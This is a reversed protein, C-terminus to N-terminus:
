RQFRVPLADFGRLGLRKTRPLTEHDAALRVERYQLFARLAEQSEVRALQMGLCVHPGHGFGLHANPRRTAVLENPGDFREPDRNAAILLPVVRDGRRLQIGCLDTDKAVFLMNTLLVPSERRVVEELFLPLKDPEARLDDAIDPRTLLHFLANGILGTTTKHGAVFLALVMALVEDDSLRDSNEEYSLLDLILGTRQTDRVEVFSRRFYRVLRWLAPMARFFSGIGTVQGIPMSLRAVHAREALPIGLMECIAHVPLPRAFQRVLDPSPSAAAKALMEAATKALATRLEEIERRAFAGAVLRRLRAHDAGDVQSVNRLLPKVFPPVWWFVAAM